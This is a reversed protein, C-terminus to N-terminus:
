CLNLFCAAGVLLMFGAFQLM